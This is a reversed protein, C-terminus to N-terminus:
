GQDEQNHTNLFDSLLGASVSGPYMVEAVEGDRQVIQACGGRWQKNHNSWALVDGNYGTCEHGDARHPWLVHSENKVEGNPYMRWIKTM